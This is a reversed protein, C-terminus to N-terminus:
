QVTIFASEHGKTRRLKITGVLRGESVEYGHGLLGAKVVM